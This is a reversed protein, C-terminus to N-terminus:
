DLLIEVTNARDTHVEVSQGSLDPDRYRDPLSMGSSTSAAVTVRHWGTACGLQGKSRLQFRGDLGIEAVALGGRGGREADPAFVITGGPLPSGRYRVTGEVPALKVEAVCGACLILGAVVCAWSQRTLLCGEM